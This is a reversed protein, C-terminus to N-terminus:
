EWFIPSDTYVIGDVFLGVFFFIIILFVCFVVEKKRYYFAIPILVSLVIISYAWHHFHFSGVVNAGSSPILGSRQLANYCRAVFMALLFSILCFIVMKRPNSISAERDCAEVAKKVNLASKKGDPKKEQM